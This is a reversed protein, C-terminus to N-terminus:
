PKSWDIVLRLMYALDKCMDEHWDCSYHEDSRNSTWTSGVEDPFLQSFFYVAYIDPNMRMDARLIDAFLKPTVVTDAGDDHSPTYLRM